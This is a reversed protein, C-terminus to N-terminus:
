VMNEKYKKVCPQDIKPDKRCKHKLAVTQIDEFQQCFATVANKLVDKLASQFFVIM